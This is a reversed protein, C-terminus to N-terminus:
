KETIFHINKFDKDISLKSPLKLQEDLNIIMPVKDCDTYLNGLEHNDDAYIIPHQITFIFSWLAVANKSTYETGWISKDFKVTKKVPDTINEPQSRLGIIQLITEFNSQQNRQKSFEHMEIESLRQRRNSINTKTIDFLTLCTIKTTM